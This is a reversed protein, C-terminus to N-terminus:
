EIVIVDRDGDTNDNDDSDDKEKKIKKPLPAEPSDKAKKKQKKKQSNPVLAAVAFGHNQHVKRRKITSITDHRSYVEKVRALAGNYDLIHPM